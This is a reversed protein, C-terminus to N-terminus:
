MIQVVISPPAPAAASSPLFEQSEIANSSVVTTKKRNLSFVSIQQWDLFLFLCV